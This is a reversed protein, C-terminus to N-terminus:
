NVPLHRCAGEIVGTAIPWGVALATAYHLYPSKNELYTCVKAITEKKAGTLDQDAALRRLEAIVPEPGRTLITRAHAAVFSAAVPDTNEHFCWAAKWQTLRAALHRGPCTRGLAPKV